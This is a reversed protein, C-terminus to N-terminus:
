ELVLVFGGHPPLTLALKRDAYLQISERRFSLNGGDGDAILTGKAAAALGGLDLTLPKPAAEANIGAVFWRGDGRRALVAFKGPFGDLFKTDDWVGPVHRLFDRVYDPARAMGEPIEAYHQIGSNFLVSLALEFASTTRREIKDIHDLVMPTFDMPDFVNRTFPLMAVHTPEEDANKQEFTVFELGRIAEMTMLHPYTRSWGRPLTAGHFNMVFGFPAADDLIDQYYNIMSQGDGGFFDIKLGAVGLAKLRTFEKVRSEHTLLLNRPTQPTSNWSGASNEWVLIKVNKTRAYDALEKVKDYGIQQDWQADILTYRWGMDAAYDIFRKQVDYTTHIDGLLPWSWSAQGPEFAPDWALAPKAALDLGLTSEAITKLSGVVILRWPTLWPLSSEPNVAGDPLGERPDPFGVSYEGDPSEVRLATGCYHRGLATESVLLWTDGSKFLAPYVWGAMPSPTGVPIDKEYYEEYSPNCQAWGSRAVAKPQLWARTGPSFHFSSVEEKLRHMKPDTEPFFYRFAVGDNSVQFIVDLKPGTASQLHFVARNAAYRNLRRKATLIEYRDQVPEVPSAVLLNLGQSFDADDRVLGLRSERLVPRGDLTITYRPAGATNLHFDVALRGDPSAIRGAPSGAAAARVTTVACLIALPIVIVEPLRLLSKM